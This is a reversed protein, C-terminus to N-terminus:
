TCTAPNLTRPWCRSLDEGTVTSAMAPIAINTFGLLGGLFIFQFNLNQLRVRITPVPGNPRSAYGLGSHRYEVVVNAPQIRWFIDCMGPRLPAVTGGCVGDSGRVVRNLNAASFTGGGSCSNASGNCIRSYTLSPGGPTNTGDLGTFTILGTDVPYSVSALRAGVQVAKSAANWQYLAYGFDVFGFLVTFLLTMVITFEVLAAGDEGSALGRISRAGVM